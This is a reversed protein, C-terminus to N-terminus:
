GIQKTTPQVSFQLNINRARDRSKTRHDSGTGSRLRRRAPGSCSLRSPDESTCAATIATLLADCRTNSGTSSQKRGVQLFRRLCAASM